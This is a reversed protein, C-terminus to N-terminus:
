KWIKGPKKEKNKEEEEKESESESSSSYNLIKRKTKKISKQEKELEKRAVKRVLKDNFPVNCTEKVYKNWRKASFKKKWIKWDRKNIRWNKKTQWLKEKM